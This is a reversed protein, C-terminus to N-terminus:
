GVENNNASNMRIYSDTQMALLNKIFVAINLHLYQLLYIVLHQMFLSMTTKQERWYQKKKPGFVIHFYQM